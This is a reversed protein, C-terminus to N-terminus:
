TRANPKNCVVSVPYGRFTAPVIAKWEAFPMGGVTAPEDGNWESVSEAIVVLSEGGNTTSQFVGYSGQPLRPELSTRLQMMADFHRRGAYYRAGQAKLSRWFFLGAGFAILGVVLCIIAMTTASFFWGVLALVGCVAALFWCIIALFGVVIGGQQSGTM